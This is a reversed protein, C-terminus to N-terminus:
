NQWSFCPVALALAHLMMLHLRVIWCITATLFRRWADGALEGRLRHLDTNGSVRSRPEAADRRAHGGAHTACARVLCLRTRRACGLLVLGLLTTSVRTTSTRAARLSHRATSSSHQPVFNQSSARWCPPSPALSGFNVPVPQPGPSATAPRASLPQLPEWSDATRQTNAQPQPQGHYVNISMWGTEESVSAASAAEAAASAGAGPGM